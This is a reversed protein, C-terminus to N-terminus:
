ALKKLIGYNIKSSSKDDDLTEIIKETPESTTQNALIKKYERAISEEGYDELPRYIVQNVFQRLIELDEEDIANVFVMYDFVGARGEASEAKTVITGTFAVPLNFHLLSNLPLEAMTSFTLEHETLSTLLVEFKLDVMKEPSVGTFIHQPYDSKKKKHIFNNTLMWFLTSTLAGETCLVNTYDLAKQMAQTKSSCSTMVIIPKVQHKTGLHQIMQTLKKLGDGHEPNISLDFFVIDTTYAWEEQMPDESFNVHVKHHDYESFIEKPLDKNKTLVKIRSPRSNLLHHNLSRWTDLTDEQVTDTTVDGWPDALPLEMLYSFNYANSSSSFTKEKIGFSSRTLDPFFPLRLGIDSTMYDLNTELTFTNENISSVTSVAGVQLRQNIGRAVAYNPFVINEHYALYLADRFIRSPESGKLYFLQIGSGQLYRHSNLFDKNPCIAVFVTSVYDKNRRLYTIERMVHDIDKVMALDIYVVGPHFETCIDVIAGPKFRFNAYKFSEFGPQAHFNSLEEFFSSDSGLLVIFKSQAM